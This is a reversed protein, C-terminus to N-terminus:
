ARLTRGFLELIRRWHTEAAQPHYAPWNDVAYGHRAGPYLESVYKVGAAKLAAELTQIDEATMSSDNDAHGFYLEGKVQGVLRHPSDPSDTALKGGHSSAVAGIRDPFNAAMRVAVGGGFCYGTVGVKSGPQVSPHRALFDLEAAADTKQREPTLNGILAYIHKRFVPDEFTGKLELKSAHGDRYFVNPLLVVYGAAAIRRAMSELSPRVGMADMCLIVAPWSGAGEPQFLKADLVGDATKIDVDQM